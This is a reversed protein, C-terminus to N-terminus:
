FVYMFGVLVQTIHQKDALPSAVAHKSYYNQTIGASFSWSESVPHQAFIEAQLRVVAKGQHEPRFENVEDSDVGLYFDIVNSSYFTAGGGLYIDWNKYQILHSYFSDILWGDADSLADLSALEISFVDNDIFRSYRLAIGNGSDRDDLGELTPIAKDQDDILENPFFGPIYTKTLVDLAWDDHNSIQYGIEGGYFRTGSRRQSSQIYFGKYYLDVSFSLALFDDIDHQEVNKLISPDYVAAMNVMFQWSFENDNTSEPTTNKDNALALNASFLFIFVSLKQFKM